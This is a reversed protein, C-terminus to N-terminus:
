PGPRSAIIRVSNYLHWKWDFCRVCSQLRCRRREEQKEIWLRERETDRERTRETEGPCGCTQRAMSFSSIEAIASWDAQQTNIIFTACTSSLSLSFNLTVWDPLNDPFTVSIYHVRVRVARLFYCPSFNTMGIAMVSKLSSPWPTHEHLANADQSLFRNREASLVSQTRGQSTHSLKVERFAASIFTTIHPSLFFFFLFRYFVYLM